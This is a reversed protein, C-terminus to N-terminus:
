LPESMAEGLYGNRRRGQGRRLGRAERPGPTLSSPQVLEIYVTADSQRWEPFHEAASQRWESKKSGIFILSQFLLTKIVNSDSIFHIFIHNQLLIFCNIVKIMIFVKFM